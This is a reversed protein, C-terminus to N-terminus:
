GGIDTATHRVVSARGVALWVAVFVIVMSLLNAFAFAADALVCVIAGFVVVLFTSTVVIAVLFFPAM